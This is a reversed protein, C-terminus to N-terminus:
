RDFTFITLHLDGEILSLCDIFDGNNEIFLRFYLIYVIVVM